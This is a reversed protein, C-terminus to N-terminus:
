GASRGTAQRLRRPRMDTWVAEIYELCDERAGQKPEGVWGPPLPTGAPWISYQGENNRVVVFEESTEFPM